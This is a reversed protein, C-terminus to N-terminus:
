VTGSNINKLALSNVEGTFWLDQQGGELLLTELTICAKHPVPPSFSYRPLALLSTSLQTRTRQLAQAAMRM